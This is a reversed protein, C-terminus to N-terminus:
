ISLIEDMSIDHASCPVEKVLQYPFAVGLKYVRKFHPHSLFRDYYGKGRGLRKGEHDFAMGPIVALDIKNYATFEEGTPEMIGYAGSVLRQSTTYTRLELKNGLCLPLLIKKRKHWREILEHTDPEDPLSHYLLITQAEAFRPHAELKQMLIRSYERLVSKDAIATYQKKIYKRLENKM